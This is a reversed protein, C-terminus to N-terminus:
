LMGQKSTLGCRPNLILRQELGHSQLRYSCRPLARAGPRRRQVRCPQCLCALPHRRGMGASLRTLLTLVIRAATYWADTSGVFFTSYEFGLAVPDTAGRPECESM